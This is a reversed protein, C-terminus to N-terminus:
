VALGGPGSLAPGAGDGGASSQPLAELHTSLAGPSFFCIACTGAKAKCLLVATAAGM